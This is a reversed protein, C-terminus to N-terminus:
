KFIVTQFMGNLDTKDLQLAFQSGDYHAVVDIASSHKTWMVHQAQNATSPQSQLTQNILQATEGTDSNACICIPFSQADPFTQSDPQNAPFASTPIALM